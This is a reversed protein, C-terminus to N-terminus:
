GAQSTVDSSRRTNEATNVKGASPRWALWDALWGLVGGTLLDLAYHQKTALTGFLIMSTWLWLGANVLPHISNKFLRRTLALTYILCGAHLSPFANLPGDVHTIFLLFPTSDAHAPRPSAVPFVAFIAFSTLALLAFGTLYRRLQERTVTLWPIVSTLVFVSEYIWAWPRPRFGAWADIATMPLEHLPFFAHRSLYLYGSWFVASVGLAAAAKM